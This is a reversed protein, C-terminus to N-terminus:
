GVVWCFLWGALWEGNVLARSFFDRCPETWKTPDELVPSVGAGALFLARLKNDRNPPYGHCLELLCIGTSWIDAPYSHPEGRIMEPPIWFTTGLIGRMTSIGKKVDAVLGFDILKIDGTVTMMVNHSKIDRHVVGNEHLYKVAGLIAHASYAVEWELFNGTKSAERLTGGQMQELVLWLQKKGLNTFSSHPSSSSPPSPLLSFM